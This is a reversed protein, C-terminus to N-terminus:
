PRAETASPTPSRVVVLMQNGGRQFEYPVSQLSLSYGEGTLTAIVGPVHPSLEGSQDLLPFIRVEAAVRALERISALHFDLPLLESYTFLLHSCLTLGFNDDAFPLRPLAGFRYRHERLGQPFDEIFRKMAALRADVLPAPSDFASWVYRDRDQKVHEIIAPATERIRADIAEASYEYLPDCSVVTGGLATLEANFGAPGGACDLIRKREDEDSLAFMARYEALSRGWPKADNLAM